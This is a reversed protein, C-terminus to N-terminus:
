ENSQQAKARRRGSVSLLIGTGCLMVALSTAGRSVFPLTLGTSPLVNTAVGMNIFAQLIILATVGTALYAGFKDCAEMAIKVGFYAYAIYLGIVLVGGVFGFEECIISFIYDTDSMPLHTIKQKSNGIGVGFLGGDGIAYLSQVVQYGVDKPDDWAHLWAQIRDGQYKTFTIMMPVLLGIGGVGIAVIWKPLGAVFLVVVVAGLLCMTTSLDPEIIVLGALLALPIGLALFSIKQKYWEKKYAVYRATCIVALFKAFESPQFSFNETIWIWRHANNVPKDFLAWLLMGGVAVCAVLLCFKNKLIHYDLRGLLLMVLFGAGAAIGQSTIAGLYDGKKSSILTMNYTASLVMVIGVLTLLATIFVLPLCIGTYEYKKRKAM